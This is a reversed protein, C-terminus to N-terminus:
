GPRGKARKSDQSHEGPKDARARLGGQHGYKARPFGSAWGARVIQDVILDTYYSLRAKRSPRPSSFRQQDRGCPNRYQHCSCPRRRHRISLLRASLMVRGMINAGRLLPGSSVLAEVSRAPSFGGAFGMRRGVVLLPGVIPIPAFDSLQESKAGIGMRVPAGSPRRV